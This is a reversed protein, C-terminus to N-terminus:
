GCWADHVLLAEEVGVTDLLGTTTAKHKIKETEDFPEEALESSLLYQKWLTGSWPCHKTARAMTELLSSKQREVLFDIHDEWITLVAPFRLEARQYLADVMDFVPKHSEQGRRAKGKRQTQPKREQEREWEIYTIFAQYEGTTDRSSQAQLLATEYSDRETWIKKAHASDRLNSAMIEEYQDSPVNASVFSSFAQFTQQWEAHPVRLRTEFLELAATAEHSPLRQGLDGFRVAMYKNWVEHSHSLDHKTRELAETWTDLVLNWDFVDRGVVRETDVDGHPDGSSDLAWKHCHVVWDGYTAWLGTSGYEETVARRCNEVVAVREDVTQALISEDQLWDLWQEEGVAFLKDLNGRAQRLEPLLDYTHPERRANPDSPPYIHDIFGQHLLKIIEKHAEYSSPSEQVYAALVALRQQADVPLSTGSYDTRFQQKPTDVMNIDISARPNSTAGASSVHPFLDSLSKQSDISDRSQLLPPTIKSSAFDALIEMSPTSSKRLLHTGATGAPVPSILPSSHPSQQSPSRVHAPISSALQVSRGLPSNVMGSTGSHSRQVHKYPSQSQSHAQVPIPASTSTSGGGNSTPTLSQAPPTESPSLLSNIDMTTFTCEKKERTEIDVWCVLLSHSELEKLM